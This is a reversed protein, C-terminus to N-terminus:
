LDIDFNIKPQIKFTPPAAGSSGASEALDRDNALMFNATFPGNAYSAFSQLNGTGATRVATTAGYSIAMGKAGKAEKRDKAKEALYQLAQVQFTASSVFRNGYQTLRASLDAKLPV